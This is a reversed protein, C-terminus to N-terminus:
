WTVTTDMDSHCVYVNTGSDPIDQTFGIQATVTAKELIRYMSSDMTPEALQQIERNEPSSEHTRSSADTAVPGWLVRHKAISPIFEQEQNAFGVDGELFVKAAVCNDTAVSLQIPWNANGHINRRTHPPKYTYIWVNLCLALAFSCM